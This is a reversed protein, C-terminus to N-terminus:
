AVSHYDSHAEKPPILRTLAEELLQLHVHVEQIDSIAEQVRNKGKREDGPAGAEGYIKELERVSRGVYIMHDQAEDYWSKAEECPNREEDDVPGELITTTHNMVIGRLTVTDM